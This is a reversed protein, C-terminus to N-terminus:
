QNGVGTITGGDHSVFVIPDACARARRAQGTRKGTGHFAGAHQHQLFRLAEAAAGSVGVAGHPSSGIGQLALGPDVVIEIAGLRVQAPQGAAEGVLVAKQAQAAVGTGRQLVEAPVADAEAQDAVQRVV